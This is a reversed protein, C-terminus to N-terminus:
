NLDTPQRRHWDTLSQFAQGCQLLLNDQWSPAILQVGLPLGNESLGAPLTIACADLYNVARNFAGVPTIGEDIDSVPCAEFPLTPTMLIDYSQMWQAFRDIEASRQALLARHADADILGGAQIRERVRPGFALDADDIYGAHQQYAEVAIIKGTRQMLEAFDFPLDIADVQVGLSRFVRVAEDFSRQVDHTVPWPYQDPRMLAIRRAPPATGVGCDFHFPPRGLTGPDRPDPGALVAALLAADEASRTMLGLTDLSPSLAL